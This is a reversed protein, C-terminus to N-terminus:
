GKQAKGQTAGYQTGPPTLRHLFPPRRLERAADTWPEPLASVHHCVEELFGRGELFHEAVLPVYSRTAKGRGVFRQGCPYAFSTPRRGTFTELAENAQIMEYLKLRELTYNKRSFPSNRSFM